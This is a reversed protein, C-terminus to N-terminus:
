PLRGQGAGAHHYYRDERPERCRTDPLTREFRKLADPYVPGTMLYKTGTIALRQFERQKAEEAVAVAISLWPIPSEELVLPLVGSPNHQGPLDRLGSRRLGAQAGLFADATGGGALEGGPHADHVRGPLPQAPLSGPPLAGGDM